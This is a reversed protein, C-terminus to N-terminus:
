EFKVYERKKIEDRIKEVEEKEEETLDEYDLFNDIKTNLEIILQEIHKIKKLLIDTMRRPKLNPEKRSIYVIDELIDRHIIFYKM